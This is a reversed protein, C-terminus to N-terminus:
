PLIFQETKITSRVNHYINDPLPLEVLKHAMKYFLLLRMKTHLYSISKLSLSTFIQTISSTRRCYKIIFRSARKQVSLTQDAKQCVSNAHYNFNLKFDFSHGLVSFHARVMRPLKRNFIVPSSPVAAVLHLM